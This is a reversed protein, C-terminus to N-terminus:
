RRGRRTVKVSRARIVVRQVRRSRRRAPARRKRKASEGLRAGLFSAGGSVLAGTAIQAWDLPNKRKISRVHMRTSAWGARYRDHRRRAVLSVAELIASARAYMAKRMKPYRLGIRAASAAKRRLLAVDARTLPNKRLSGARLLDEIERRAKRGRGAGRMTRLYKAATLRSIARAEAVTPNRYKRVHPLWAAADALRHAARRAALPGHYMPHFRAASKWDTLMRAQESLVRQLRKGSLRRRQRATPNTAAWREIARRDAASIRKPRRASM